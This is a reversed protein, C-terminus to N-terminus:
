PGGPSRRTSFMDPSDRRDRILADRNAHHAFVVQEPAGSRRRPMAREILGRRSSVAKACILHYTTGIAYVRHVRELSRRHKPVSLLASADSSFASPGRPRTRGFRPTLGANRM